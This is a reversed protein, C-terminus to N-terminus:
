SPLSVPSSTPWCPSPSFVLEVDDDSGGALVTDVEAESGAGEVDGSVVDVVDVELEGVRLLSSSSSVSWVVLVEVGAGAGAGVEETSEVLVVLVSGGGAAVVVSGGAVVVEAVEVDVPPRKFESELKKFSVSPPSVVSENPIGFRNEDVVVDDVVVEPLVV